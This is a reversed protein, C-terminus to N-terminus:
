ESPAAFVRIEAEDWARAFLLLEDVAGVFPMTQHAENGQHSEFGIYCADDPYLPGPSWVRAEEADATRLHPPAETPEGDLWITANEATLPDGARGAFVIVVNRWAGVRASGAPASWGGGRTDGLRIRDDPTVWLAWKDDCAFVHQHLGGQDVRMRAAITFPGDLDFAADEPLDVRDAVEDFVRAAGWRAAETGGSRAIGHLGHPGFDQLRGDHLRSSMDYAAVLADPSIAASGTPRASSVGHYEPSSGPSPEAPLGPACHAGLAGEALLDLVADLLRRQGVFGRHLYLSIATDCQPVYWSGATHGTFLGGHGILSFREGRMLGGVFQLAEDAPAALGGAGWEVPSGDLRTTRGLEGFMASHEGEALPGLHGPGLDGAAEEHRPFKPIWRDLPDDRSLAKSELDIHGTAVVVPPDSGAQVGLITGPAGVEVRVGELTARLADSRGDHGDGCASPTAVMVLCSAWLWPATLRAAKGARVPRESVM